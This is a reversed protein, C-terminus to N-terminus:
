VLSRTSVRNPAIPSSAAERDSGVKVRADGPNRCYFLERLNCSYYIYNDYNGYDSLLLLLTLLLLLKLSNNQSRSGPSARTFTPDSRFDADRWRPPDGLDPYSLYPIRGRPGKLDITKM